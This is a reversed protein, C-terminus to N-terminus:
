TRRSIVNGDPFASTVQYGPFLPIPLLEGRLIPLIREGIVRRIHIARIATEEGNEIPVSYQVFRDSNSEKVREQKLQEPTEASKITIDGM